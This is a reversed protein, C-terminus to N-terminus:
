RDAAPIRLRVSTGGGERDGLEVTGGHATVVDRAIALGLGSGPSGADRVFREFVRPKLDAPVGSGDDAVEIEVQDGMGRASLLISGGPSTHRLANAVLNSLVGRLRGPDADAPPVDPGVEARLGTGASDAQSAFSAVVDQLLEALEVPERKLVLAGSESLALTRLDDVLLELSRTAELIPRLHAEDAGHVGDLIAEVEGRIVSLPTRLEHTVDALFGRRRRDDAELRASMSNFARAVSRVDPSGREPVRASYDGGEVRAAAESLDSIPRAMRSLGRLGAAATLLMLVALTMALVGGGFGGLASGLLLTMATAGASLFVIVAALLLGIRLVFRAPPRRRGRPPWTEGEPWWPPRRGPPGWGRRM